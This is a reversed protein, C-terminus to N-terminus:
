EQMSNKNINLSTRLCEFKVVNEFFKIDINLNYNQRANKKPSM